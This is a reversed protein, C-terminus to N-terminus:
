NSSLSSFFHLHNATGGEVVILMEGGEGGEGGGGEEKGDNPTITIRIITITWMATMGVREGFGSATLSGPWHLQPRESERRLLIMLGPHGEAPFQAKDQASFM